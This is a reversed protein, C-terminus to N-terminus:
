INGLSDEVLARPAYDGLSPTNIPRREFAQTIPDYIVLGNITGIWIKGSRDELITRVEHLEGDLEIRQWQKTPAHFRAIGKDVLGLWINDQRDRYATLFAQDHINHPAKVQDILNRDANWQLMGTGETILWSSNQRDIAIGSVAAKVDPLTQFFPKFHSAFGLGNGYLALWVNGFDDAVVDQVSLSGNIDVPHIHNVSQI